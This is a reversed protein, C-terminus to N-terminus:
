FSKGERKSSSSSDSALYSTSFHFESRPFILRIRRQACVFLLQNSSSFSTWSFESKTSKKKMKACMFIEWCVWVAVSSMWKETRKSDARKQSTVHRSFITQKANTKIRSSTFFLPFQRNYGENAHHKSLSKIAAENRPLCLAWLPIFCVRAENM